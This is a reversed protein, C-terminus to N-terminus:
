KQVLARKTHTNTRNRTLGLEKGTGTQEIKTDAAGNPSGSSDNTEINNEVCGGM